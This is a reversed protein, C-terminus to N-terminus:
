LYSDDRIPTQSKFLSGNVFRLVEIWLLYYLGISLDTHVAIIWYERSFSERRWCMIGGLVPRRERGSDESRCLGVIAREHSIRDGQIKSVKEARPQDSFSPISHEPDHSSPSGLEDSRDSMRESSVSTASRSAEGNTVGRNGPQQAVGGPIDTYGDM